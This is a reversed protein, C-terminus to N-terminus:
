EAVFTNGSWEFVDLPVGEHEATRGTRRFHEYRNGTLVKVVNEGPDVARLRAFESGAAGGELLIKAKPETM